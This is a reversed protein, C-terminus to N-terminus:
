KSLPMLIPLLTQLVQRMSTGVVYYGTNNGWGVGSAQSLVILSFWVPISKLEM